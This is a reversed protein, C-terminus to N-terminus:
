HNLIINIALALDHIYNNHNHQVMGCDILRTNAILKWGNDVIINRDNHSNNKNKLRFKSSFTITSYNLNIQENSKKRKTTVTSLVNQGIPECKLSILKCV